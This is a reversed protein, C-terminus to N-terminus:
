FVANFVLMCLRIFINADKTKKYKTVKKERSYIWWKEWTDQEVCGKKVSTQHNKKIGCINRINIQINM